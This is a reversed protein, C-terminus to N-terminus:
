YYDYFEVEYEIGRLALWEKVIELGDMVSGTLVGYEDEWLFEDVGEIEECRKLKGLESTLKDDLGYFVMVGIDSDCFVMVNEKRNWESLETTETGLLELVRRIGECDNGEYRVVVIRVKM